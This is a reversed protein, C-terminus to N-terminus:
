PVGGVLYPQWSCPRRHVMRGEHNRRARSSPRDIGEDCYACIPDAPPSSPPESRADEGEEVALRPPEGSAVPTGNVVRRGVRVGRYQM